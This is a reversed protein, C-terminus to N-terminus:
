VKTISYPVQWYPRFVVYDMTDTFVPTGQGGCAKGVVANMTVAINFNEEYARLRFEPINVVIPAKQYSDPMWRWREVTLQM